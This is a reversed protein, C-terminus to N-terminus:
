TPFLRLASRKVSELFDMEAFGTIPFSRGYYSMPYRYVADAEFTLSVKGAAAEKGGSPCSIPVMSHSLTERARMEVERAEAGDHDGQYTILLDIDSTPEDQKKAVSGYLEVATLNDIGATSLIEAVLEALEMRQEHSFKMVEEATVPLRVTEVM